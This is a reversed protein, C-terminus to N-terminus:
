ERAAQLTDPPTGARGAADPDSATDGEEFRYLREGPRIMGWRERALRVITASDNKLSDVRAHLRDLEVRAEALRDRELELERKVRQVELLSYEGGFVAFYGAGAVLILGVIYRVRM